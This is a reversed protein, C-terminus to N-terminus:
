KQGTQYDHSTKIFNRLSTLDYDCQGIVKSWHFVGLTWTHTQVTNGQPMRSMNCELSSFPSATFM